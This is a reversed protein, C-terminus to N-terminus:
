VMRTKVVMPLCSYSFARFSIVLVRHGAWPGVVLTVCKHLSIHAGVSLPDSGPTTVTRHESQSVRHNGLRHLELVNPKVFTM